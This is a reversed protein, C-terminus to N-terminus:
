TARQEPDLFGIDILTRELHAYYLELEDATVLETNLM